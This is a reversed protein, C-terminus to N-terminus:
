HDQIMFRHLSDYSAYIDGGEHNNDDHVPHVHLGVDQSRGYLGLTLACFFVSRAARRAAGLGAVGRVVGPLDRGKNGVDTGCLVIRVCVGM